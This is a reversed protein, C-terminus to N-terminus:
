ASPMASKQSDASKHLSCLLKEKTNNASSTASHIPLARFRHNCAFGHSITLRSLSVFCVGYQQPESMISARNQYIPVFHFGHSFPRPRAPWNRTVPYRPHLLAHRSKNSANHHNTCQALKMSTSRHNLLFLGIRLRRYLSAIHHLQCHM